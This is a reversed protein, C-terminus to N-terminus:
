QRGEGEQWIKWSEAAQIELMELGNKVRCGRQLGERLFATEAPNYVLDYLANAATLLRYDLPPKGCIEPWAGLPTTNILLPLQRLLKGSIEPYALANSGGQRSVSKFPIGLQKLAYAVAKSAGGTGLILAGAPLPDLWGQLSEGFGIWDTNYGTLTGDTEVRICNVAGIAAAHADLRNLFPVVAEKHPITVNLGRLQKGAVLAPLEAPDQIPFADYRAAIGENRFKGSFWAPSFSHGLPYGILGYRLM